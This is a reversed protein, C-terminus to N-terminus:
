PITLVADQSLSEVSLYFSYSKDTFVSWNIIGGAFISRDLQTDHVNSENKLYYVGPGEKIITFTNIQSRDSDTSYCEYNVRYIGNSSANVDLRAIPKNNNPAVIAQTGQITQNLHQNGTLASKLEYSLIGSSDTSLVSSPASDLSFMENPTTNGVLLSNFATTIGEETLIQKLTTAHPNITSNRHIVNDSSYILDGSVNVELHQGNIGVPLSKLTGLSQALIISNNALVPANLGQIKNAPISNSDITSGNIDSLSNQIGSITKGTLTQTDDLYVLNSTDTIGHVSTTASTHSTDATISNLQDQCNSTLSNIYQFEQNSVSADALKVCDIGGKLEDDGVNSITNLDADITKNTLIEAVNSNSLNTIDVGNILNINSMNRTLPDIYVDTNILRKGTTDDFVALNNPTIAGVIADSSVDANENANNVVHLYSTIKDSSWASSASTASDDIEANDPINFISLPM